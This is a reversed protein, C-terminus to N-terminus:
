TPHDQRESYPGSIGSSWTSATSRSPVRSRLSMSSSVNQSSAERSTTAATAATSRPVIGQQCPDHRPQRREPHDHNGTRVADRPYAEGLVATKMFRGSASIHRSTLSLRPMSLFSRVMSGSRPRMPAHREAKEDEAAGALDRGLKAPQGPRIERDGREAPRLRIQGVRFGAGRRDPRRTGIHHDIGGGVGGDVPGLRLLRQGGGDVGGCGAGHRARRRRAPQGEQMDGGVVDEVAPGLPGPALVVRRRREAGIAARLEGALARHGFGATGVRDQARGPDMGPVPRIEDGGHQPDPLPAVPQGDDVVLAAPRGRRGVDRGRQDDHRPGERRPLPRPLPHIAEEV